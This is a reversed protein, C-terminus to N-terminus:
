IHFIRKIFNILKNYFHEKEITAPLNVSQQEVNIDEQRQQIKINNKRNKFIDDSKYKERKEEELKERDQKEKAMIREKQYPTAWYDRFINALIAKTEDLLNQQEFTKSNDIKFEYNEDKNRAFVERIEEPIKNLDEKPINKLIEYVEKYAKACNDEM